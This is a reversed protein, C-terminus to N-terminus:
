READLARLRPRSEKWRTFSHVTRKVERSFQAARDLHSLYVKPPQEEFAARLSIRVLSASADPLAYLVDRLLDADIVERTRETTWCHERGDPDSWVEGITLVKETTIRQELREVLERYFAANQQAHLMEYPLQEPSLMAVLAEPSM